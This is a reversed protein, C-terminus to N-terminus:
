DPAPVKFVQGPYILDPDRIQERNAEFVKVYLIGDGYSERAIGWLTFGPQVTVVSVRDQGTGPAGARALDAVAERQFPTEFRATVAGSQDLQDARLTYIGPEVDGLVQNWRGDGAVSVAGRPENNLYLRVFSGPRAQGALQVAGDPRYSIVDVVVADALGAPGGGKQLARVGAEGALLVAPAQRPAAQLPESPPETQAVPAPADAAPESAEVGPEPAAAPIEAVEEPAAAAQSAEATSQPEPMPATMPDAVAATGVPVPTEAEAEPAEAVAIPEVPDLIVVSTSALTGGAALDMALSVLRPRAVQVIDFLAVFRGSADARAVAAEEGDLLIRVAAGPKATGAVVASGAADVRVVDFEPPATQPEAAPTADEVVQPAGAAPTDAAVDPEPVDPEPVDPEAVDPEAVDPEAVDPTVAAQPVEDTLRAVPAQLRQGALYAGALVAVAVAAAILVRGRSGLDTWVGM